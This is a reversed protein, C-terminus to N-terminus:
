PEYFSGFFPIVHHCIGKFAVIGAKWAIVPEHSSRMNWLEISFIPNNIPTNLRFRGVYSDEFYALLEDAVNGFNTRIEICVAVFGRVVDQPPLFALATLMRLQLAFEPQEVYRVQLGVNQVHKWANSCLHFFCGKVNANALIAQIANIAGGEFNILIDTPFRGNTLNSIAIM